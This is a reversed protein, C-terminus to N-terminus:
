KIIWIYNYHNACGEISQRNVKLCLKRCSRNPSFGIPITDYVWRQYVIKSSRSVLAKLLYTVLNKKIDIKQIKVDGRDMIERILHDCCLIHKIQQHSKPEKVQAIVGTSNCYLLISDDLSPAVGLEDIFKWLWVAEKITDSAAICKVESTSDAVIHQKFNKWCIAGGNLTCIYGLM